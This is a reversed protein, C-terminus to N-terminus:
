IKALREPTVRFREALADIETGLVVLRPVAAFTCKPVGLVFGLALLLAAVPHPAPGRYRIRRLFDAVRTFGAVQLPVVLNPIGWESIDWPLLLGAESLARLATDVWRTERLANVANECWVPAVRAHYHPKYGHKLYHLMWGPAGLQEWADICRFLNHRAPYPGDCTWTVFSLDQALAVDSWAAPAAVPAPPPPVGGRAAARLISLVSAVSLRRGVNGPRASNATLYRAFITPDRWGGMATFAGAPPPRELSLAGRDSLAVAQSLRDAFAPHVGRFTSAAPYPQAFDGFVLVPEGAADPVKAAGAEIWKLPDHRRFRERRGGVGPQAGPLLALDVALGYGPAPIEPPPAAAALHRFQYKRTSDVILAGTPQACAPPIIERRGPAWPGPPGEGTLIECDICSAYIRKILMRTGNCLGDVPRLNHLLMVVCGVKLLLRHPPLGGSTVTNLFDIPYLQEDAIDDAVVSDASLFEHCCGDVARLLIDNLKDVDDNYPALIARERFYSATRSPTVPQAALQSHM